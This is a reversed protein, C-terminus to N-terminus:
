NKLTHNKKIKKFFMDKVALRFNYLFFFYFKKFLFFILIKEFKFLLFVFPSM